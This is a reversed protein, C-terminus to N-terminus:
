RFGDDFGLKGSYIGEVQKRGVDRFNVAVCEPFVVEFEDIGSGCVQVSERVNM